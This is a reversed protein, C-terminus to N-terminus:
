WKRWRSEKKKKPEKRAEPENGFIQRYMANSSSSYVFPDPAYGPFYTRSAQNEMMDLISKQDEGPVLNFLYQVDSDFFQAIAQNTQSLEEPSTGCILFRRDKELFSIRHFSPSSIVGYDYIYFDYGLKLACSIKDQKEFM